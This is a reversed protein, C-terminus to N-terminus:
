QTSSLLEGQKRTRKSLLVGIGIAFFVVLSVFRYPQNTQDTFGSLLPTTFLVSFIFIMISDAHLKGKRSAFFLMVTVPLLFIITIYDFRMQTAMASFGQWFLVNDFSIATGVLNTGLVAAAIAILIVIVGYSVLSYIRPKKSLSSRAVFYFSMPLFAVTLAKSFISIFYSVPSPSWFKEILYLSFLYLLIWTNDYSAATSYSTFIQSQLLITMSVLGALRSNTIKKTFFYTLLLLAISAIFPVIRINGFVKLSISLLLFKVHPEFSKAFDSMSWSSVRDKVGHYDVWTEEKALTGATLGIFIALLVIVAILAQKKTPEFNTIKSIIVRYKCEKKKYYAIGIALLIVNIVVLPIALVGPQLPDVFEPTAVVGQFPSASRTLLAPFVVSSLSLLVIIVTPVFVAWPLINKKSLRPKSPEPEKKSL